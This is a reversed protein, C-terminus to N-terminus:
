KASAVIEDIKSLVEQKLPAPKHNALIDRVKENAKEYFDKGGAAQWQDFNGRNLLEPFYMSQKFNMFTHEHSFFNGGPGVEEIVDKALTEENFEIGTLFHKIMGVAENCLVVSELSTANGAGMYGLDHILNSGALAHAFLTFGINMGAEQDFAHADSCGSTTFSPVHYFCAMKVMAASNLHEEPAAYSCLQTKMDMPPIGGGYIFPAGKNAMQSLVLSALIECNAVILAGAATVPGTAGLMVAPGALLPIRHEACFIIKDVTETSFQLPSSPESYVIIPPRWALEEAGGVVTETIATIKTLDDLSDACLIIPKSSNKIMAEFEHVYARTCDQAVAMSMIYDVQDLADAVIAADAVDKKCSPRQEGTYPDFVFQTASGTGFYINGEELAMAKEGDRSYVAVHDPVSNLADKVLFAPIRVRNGEVRCGHKKLLESAKPNMMNVGIRELVDLSAFHIEKCQSESLVDIGVTVQSKYNVRM